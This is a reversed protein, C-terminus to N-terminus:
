QVTVARGGCSCDGDACCTCESRHTLIDEAASWRGDRWIVAWGVTGARDGLVRAAAHAALDRAVSFSPIGLADWEALSLGRTNARTMREAEDVDCGNYGFVVVGPVTEVPQGITWWGYRKGPMLLPVAALDAHPVATLLALAHQVASPGPRFRDAMDEDLTGRVRAGALDRAHDRIARLHAPADGTM